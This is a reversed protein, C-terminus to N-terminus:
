KEIHVDKLVPMQYRLGTPSTYEMVDAITGYIDIVDDVKAAGRRAWFAVYTNTANSQVNGVYLMQAPKEDSDIENIEIIKVNFQTKTEISADLQDVTKPPYSVSDYLASHEVIIPFSLM